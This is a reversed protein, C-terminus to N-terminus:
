LKQPLKISKQLLFSKISHFVLISGQFKLNVEVTM